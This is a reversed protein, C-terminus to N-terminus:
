AQVDISMQSNKKKNSDQKKKKKRNDDKKEQDRHIIAEDTKKSAQTKRQREANKETLKLSFQRQAVDPAAKEIQTVKEAITTKSLLDSLEIPRVM